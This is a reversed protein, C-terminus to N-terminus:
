SVATFPMTPSALVTAWYGTATERPTVPGAVPPTAGPEPALCPQEGYERCHNQQQHKQGPGTSHANWADNVLAARVPRLARLGPQIPSSM